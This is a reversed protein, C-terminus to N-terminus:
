LAVGGRKRKDKKVTEDGGNKKRKVAVVRRPQGLFTKPDCGIAAALRYLFDVTLRRKESLVRWLTLRSVGMRECVECKPLGSEELAKRVTELVDKVRRVVKRFFSKHASYIAM